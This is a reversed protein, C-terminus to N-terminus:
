LRCAMPVPEYNAIAEKGQRCNWVSLLFDGFEASLFSENAKMWCCWGNLLGANIQFNKTALPHHCCDRLGIGGIAPGKAGKPPKAELLFVLPTPSHWQRPRRVKPPTLGLINACTSRSKLWVSSSSRLAGKRLEGRISGKPGARRRQATCM